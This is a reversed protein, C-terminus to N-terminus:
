LGKEKKGKKLNDVAWLPQFNTYHNLRIIDDETKATSIPIVHDFHWEGHNEMNMGKTFKNSIFEIFEAISCGLISETKLGKKYTGNCARKFSNKILNRTNHHIKFVSDESMRKKFYKNMYGKNKLMYEKQYNKNKLLWNDNYKSTKDKNNLRWKTSYINAEERNGKINNQYYNRKIEKSKEINNLKWLKSVDSMCKRCSPQLNDKTNKNKSFDILEKEIKCYKCIKGM